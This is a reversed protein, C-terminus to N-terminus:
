RAHQFPEVPFGAGTPLVRQKGVPHVHVLDPRQLPGRAIPLFQPNAQILVHGQVRAVHPVFLAEVHHDIRGSREDVIRLDDKDQAPGTRGLHDQSFPSLAQCVNAPQRQLRELAKLIDERSLTPSQVLTETAAISVVGVRVNAPQEAVFARAANRAASMRDPKVDTARM